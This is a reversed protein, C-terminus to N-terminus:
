PQIEPFSIATYLCQLWSASLSEKSNIGQSNDNQYSLNSVLEWMAVWSFAEIAKTFLANTNWCVGKILGLHDGLPTCTSSEHPTLSKDLHIAHDLIDLVQWELWITHRGACFPTVSLKRHALQINTDLYQSWCFTSSWQITWSHHPTYWVFLGLISLLLLM